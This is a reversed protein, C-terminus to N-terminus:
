PVRVTALKTGSIDVTSPVPAVPPPVVTPLSVPGVPATAHNHANFAAIFDNLDSVLQDVQTKLEEYQVAHNSGGQLVMDGAANLKFTALKNGNEDYSYFETEGESVSPEVGDDCAVAIKYAKGAENIFVRDEPQPRWDQGAATMLEVTQIDDPDSIEVKMMVRLDSGDRNTEINTTKVIGIM